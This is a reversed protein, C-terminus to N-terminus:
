IMALVKTKMCYKSNNKVDHRVERHIEHNKLFSSLDNTNLGPDNAEVLMGLTAQAKALWDWNGRATLFIDSYSNSM